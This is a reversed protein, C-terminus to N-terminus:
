FSYPFYPIQDTLLYLKEIQNQIDNIITKKATVVYDEVKEKKGESESIESEIRRLDKLDRELEKVRKEIEKYAGHLVVKQSM